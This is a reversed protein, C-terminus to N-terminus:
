LHTYELIINSIVAPLKDNNIKFLVRGININMQTKWKRYVKNIKESVIFTDKTLETGRILLPKILIFKIRDRINIKNNNKAIKILKLLISMYNSIHNKNHSCYKLIQYFIKEYILNMLPQSILYTLIDTKNNEIATTLAVLYINELYLYDYRTTHKLYDNSKTNKLHVDKEGIRNIQFEVFFLKVLAASNNKCISAVIDIFQIEKSDTLKCNIVEKTEKEIEIIKKTISNELWLKELLYAYHTKYSLKQTRNYCYSRILNIPKNRLDSQAYNHLLELTM